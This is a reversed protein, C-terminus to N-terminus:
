NSKNIRTKVKKKSSSACGINKTLDIDKPIGGFDVIGDEFDLPELEESKTKYSKKM